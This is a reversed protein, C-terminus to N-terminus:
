PTILAPSIYFPADRYLFSHNISVKLHFLLLRPNSIHTDSVTHLKIFNASISSSPQWFNNFTNLLVLMINKTQHILCSAYSVQLLVIVSAAVASVVPAAESETAATAMSSFQWKYVIIMSEEYEIRNLQLKLVVMM